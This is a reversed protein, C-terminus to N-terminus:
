VEDRGGRRARVLVGIGVALLVAGALITRWSNAGTEALRKGLSPQSPVPQAPPTGEEPAPPVPIGPGPVPIDVPPVPTPAPPTATPPTPTPKGPTPKGPTPTSPTEPTPPGPPVEVTIENTPVGPPTNPDFPPYGEVLIYGRNTVKGAEPQKVVEADFSWNVTVAPNGERRAALKARGADTLRISAVQGTEARELTVVYDEDRVLERPSADHGPAADVLAVKVSDEIFKLHPDIPDFMEFRSISGDRYPAPVTGTLAFNVKEGVKASTRNAAKSSSLEQDKANVQVHYRWQARTEPDTMPLAVVFPEAISWRCEMAPGPVETVYYLGLPLDAFVAQGEADVTAQKPAGLRDAAPGGPIFDSAKLREAERWGEATTLDVGEVRRVQFVAGEPSPRKAEGTPDGHTIAPDGLSKQITLQGTRAADVLAPNAGEAARVAQAQVHVGAQTQAGAPAGVAALVAAVAVAVVAALVRAVVWLRENGRADVAIFNRM